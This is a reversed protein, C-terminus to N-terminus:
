EPQPKPQPIPHSIGANIYEGLLVLNGLEGIEVALEETHKKLVTLDRTTCTKIQNVKWSEMPGRFRMNVLRLYPVLM